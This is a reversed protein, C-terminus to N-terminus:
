RFPQWFKVGLGFYFFAYIALVAAVWIAVAWIACGIFPRIKNVGGGWYAVESPPREMQPLTADKINNTM